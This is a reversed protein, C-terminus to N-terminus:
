PLIDSVCARHFQSPSPLTLEETSLHRISLFSDAFSTSIRYYCSFRAYSLFYTFVAPNPYLSRRNLSLWAHSTLHHLNLSVHLSSFLAPFEPRPPISGRHESETMLLERAGPILSPEPGNAGIQWTPQRIRTRQSAGSDDGTGVWTHFQLWDAGATPCHGYILILPPKSTLRM